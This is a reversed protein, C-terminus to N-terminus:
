LLCGLSAEISLILSDEQILIKLYTCLKCPKLIFPAIYEECLWAFCMKVRNVERNRNAVKM